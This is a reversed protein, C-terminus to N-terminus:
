TLESLLELIFPLEFYSKNEVELTQTRSKGKIQEGKSFVMTIILDFINGLYLVQWINEALLM